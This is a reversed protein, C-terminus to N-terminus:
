TNVSERRPLDLAPNVNNDVYGVRSAHHGVMQQIVNDCGRRRACEPEYAIEQTPNITVSQSEEYM